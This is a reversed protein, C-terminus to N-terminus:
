AKNEADKIFVKYYKEYKWSGWLTDNIKKAHADLRKKTPCEYFEHGTGQCVPCVFGGKKMDDILLYTTCDKELQDIDFEKQRFPNKVIVLEIRPEELERYTALNYLLEELYTQMLPDDYPSPLM